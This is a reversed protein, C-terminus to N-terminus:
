LRIEVKKDVSAIKPINAKDKYSSNASLFGGIIAVINKLYHIPLGDLVAVLSNDSKRNIRSLINHSFPFPAMSYPMEVHLFKIQGLYDLENSSILVFM